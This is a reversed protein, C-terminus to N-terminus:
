PAVAVPRPAPAHHRPRVLADLLVVVNMLGAMSCYLIAIEHVITVSRLSSVKSGTSRPVMPTPADLMEGVSGSKVWATSVWDAAFAVPGAGAQAMFWLGNDKRDVVGVGGLLLGGLFLGLIGVMAFVGRQVHGIWMHGLGPVLWGMIAAVWNLGEDDTVDAV